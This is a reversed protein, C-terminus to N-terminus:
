ATERGRISASFRLPRSFLSRSSTSTSPSSDPPPDSPASGGRPDFIPQRRRRQRRPEMRLVWRGGVPNM